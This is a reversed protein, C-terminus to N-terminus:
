IPALTITIRGIDRRRRRRRRRGSRWVRRVGVDERVRLRGRMWGSRWRRWGQRLVLLLLVRGVRVFRMQVSLLLLGLLRLLVLLGRKLRIGRRRSGVCIALLLLLLLLVVRRMLLLLLLLQVLRGGVLPVIRGHRRGQRHVAGTPHARM